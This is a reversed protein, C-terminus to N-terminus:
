FGRTRRFNLRKKDWFVVVKDGIGCFHCEKNVFLLKRRKVFIVFIDRRKEGFKVIKM